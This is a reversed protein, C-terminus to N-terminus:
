FGAQGVTCRGSREMLHYVLNAAYNAQTDETALRNLLHLDALTVEHDKAASLFDCWDCVTPATKEFQTAVKSIAADYQKRNFM